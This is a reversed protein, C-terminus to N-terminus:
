QPMLSTLKRKSALLQKKVERPTPNRKTALEIAVPINYNESAATNESPHSASGSINASFTSGSVAQRVNFLLANFSNHLIGRRIPLRKQSDEDYWSNLRTSSWHLPHL